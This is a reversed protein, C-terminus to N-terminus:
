EQPRGEASQTKGTVPKIWKKSRFRHICLIAKVVDEGLLMVTFVWVFPLKLVFASIATLPLAIFWLCLVDFKMGTVTDGGSRFIGVIQIYPINRFAIELGYVLTIAMATYITTESLKGDLNFLSIVPARTVAVMTGVFLSLLPVIIAFRRADRYGEEAMGAGVAKGVMVCCANCLGVFFVFAIGEITRYITVAAYYEHGLQGFIINYCVTGLAWLTENLIVPTSIRYFKMLAARSFSVLAKPKVALLNKKLYSVGIITLTNAFSSIVTALAAGRVGLAPFGLKGYILVYNLACNLLTAVLSAYMPLKVNETSRLVTSFVATLAYSFYAFAAIRLYASGESIVSKNSNFISIIFGPCSVAVTFFLAAIGIGHWLMIGYSDHIGKMDKVGWYQSIFVSTGSCLGFIVLNMLWSVQNAMGVGSFSIDGLQSVMINDVFSFLSMLLNQFAIPLAIKFAAAWFPRDGLYKSIM